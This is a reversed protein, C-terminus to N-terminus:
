IKSFWDITADLFHADILYSEEDRSGDRATKRNAYFKIAAKATEQTSYVGYVMM